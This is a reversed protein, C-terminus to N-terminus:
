NKLNNAHVVFVLWNTLPLIPMSYNKMEPENPVNYKTNHFFRREYHEETLQLPKTRKFSIGWHATTHLYQALCKLLKYHYELPTSSFKSLTTVAYGVDLQCTMYAYM